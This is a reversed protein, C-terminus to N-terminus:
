GGAWTVADDTVSDEFVNQRFTDCLVEFASEYLVDHAGLSVHKLRHDVTEDRPFNYTRIKESRDGTGITSKREQKTTEEKKVKERDLLRSRLLDLGIKKNDIQSSTQTVNVSLGTPLHTVRIASHSANVSQGGPGTSKKVEFKLDVAPIVLDAEEAQPLVVVSASSTQIRGKADNAPIRQVRHVGNEYMLARFAERGIVEAIRITESMTVCHFRWSRSEAYNQYMEWLEDAFSMAEQGGSGPRIELVCNRDTASIAKTAKEYAERIALLVEDEAQTVYAGNRAAEQKYLQIFEPDKEAAFEALFVNHDRIANHLSTLSATIAPNVHPLAIKQLRSIWRSM